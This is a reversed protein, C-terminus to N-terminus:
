NLVRLNYNYSNYSTNKTNYDMSVRAVCHCDVTNYERKKLVFIVFLIDVRNHSILTCIINKFYYWM